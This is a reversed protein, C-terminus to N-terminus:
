LQQGYKTKYATLEAALFDRETTIRDIEEKDEAKAQRYAEEARVEIATQTNWEQLLM